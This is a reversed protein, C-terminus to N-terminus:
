KKRKVVLLILEKFNSDKRVLMWYIVCASVGGVILIMIPNFTIYTLIFAPTVAIASFILYKIFDRVQVFYGLGFLKGTYYTNIMVAIQTYIARSLCIALVGFPIAAVLM